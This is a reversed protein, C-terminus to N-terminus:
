SLFRSAVAVLASRNDVHLARLLSSVHIRVTFPSIGLDRAIEKNSKGECVLLLVEQQRATLEPFRVSITESPAIAQTAGSVVFDGDFLAEFADGMQDRSAAKSIFGDVGAGMVREITAPDDAMSVIVIASRPYAQRLHPIARGLDMGPFWLDLVFVDVKAVSKAQDLLQGFTGSQLIDAQPQLAQLLTCVGERFIPHDDAVIITELAPSPGKSM